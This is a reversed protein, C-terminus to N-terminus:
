LAVGFRDKKLLRFICSYHKEPDFGGRKEALGKFLTTPAVPISGTVGVTHVHTNHVFIINKLLNYHKEACLVPDFAMKYQGLSGGVRSHSALM